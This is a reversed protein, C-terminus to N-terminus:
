KKPRTQPVTSRYFEPCHFSSIIKEKKMVEVNTWIYIKSEPKGLADSPSLAIKDLVDLGYVVKGFRTVPFSNTLTDKYTSICFISGHSKQEPNVADVKRAACLDGKTYVDNPNIEAKLEYDPGGYGNSTSDSDRTNPDGGSINYPKIIQNILTSDYFGSHCLTLFNNKHIPTSDRLLVIMDGLTTHITVVYDEDPKLQKLAKGGKMPSIFSAFTILILSYTILLPM